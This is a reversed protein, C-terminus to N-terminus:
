HVPIWAREAQQPKLVKDVYMKNFHDLQRKERLDLQELRNKREEATLSGDAKVGNRIRRINALMTRANEAAKALRLMDGHDIKLQAVEDKHGTKGLGKKEYALAEIQEAREYFLSRNVGPPQAQVVKRAFPVDNMEIPQDALWKTALGGTRSFFGGAAGFIFQFFQDLTEPSVDIAGGKFENGGTLSNLMEAVNRSVPGTSSWYKQSEPKSQDFPTEPVIKRGAFDENRTYDVLPDIVTPSLFNLLSQTGGVPNFADVGTTLINGLTTGAGQHGRLYAAFNRGLDYFVNFGYPLPITIAQGSPTMVILNRSKTFDKIKGYKDEGDDDDPSIMANLMEMAFGLVVIGIVVRQVKKHKLARVMVATGQVSANFFLYMANMAPGLEGRRNFNITLNKALSAAQAGSLGLRKANVYTSLRIGNDVAANAHEIVDRTDRLLNRIDWPRRRMRALEKELKTTHEDLNDIQFFSVRGGDAAFDRFHQAWVTNNRGRVGGWAGKLAKGYDRMVNKRLGALDTASMNINAATVDRFANTILFEPNMGTNMLSLYRNVAMLVRFIGNLRNGELNKLAAVLRYDHITIRHEHGDVKLRVTREDEEKTLRSTARYEVLGTVKNFVPKIEVKNVEWYTPDNSNQVLNLLSLLVANKESRIVAEDAQMLINALISSARSKRGLARQSEPGKVNYGTGTRAREPDGGDDLIESMGRLPVYHRYTQRWRLAEQQSMLGGAVREDLTASILADVRAAVTELQPLIGLLRFANMIGDADADTMGSGEGPQFRPNISAIRANREKAHRAYLYKEIQEVTLKSDHIAQLLPKKFDRDLRFLKEGAKSTFGEEARYANEAELLASGRGAEIISQVRRLRIYRDQLLQRARDVQVGIAARSTAGKVRDILALNSDLMWEVM